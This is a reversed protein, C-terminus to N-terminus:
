KKKKLLRISETGAADWDSCHIKVRPFQKKTWTALLCSSYQGDEFISNSLVVDRDTGAMFLSLILTLNNYTSKTVNYGECKQNYWGEKEL